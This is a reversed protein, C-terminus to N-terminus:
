RENEREIERYRKREWDLETEEGKNRKGWGYMKRGNERRSKWNIVKREIEGVLSVTNGIFHM